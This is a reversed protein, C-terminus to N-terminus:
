SINRQLVCWHYGDGGFSFPKEFKSRNRIIALVKNESTGSKQRDDPQWVDVSEEGALMALNKKNM